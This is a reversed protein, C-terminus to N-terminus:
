YDHEVKEVKRKLAELKEEDLVKKYEIPLVKLFKGVYSAWNELIEKARPSGTYDYHRTILGKLEREDSSDEILSLEVMEMNCFYDFNCDENLVFAMGGSMGAAFNRGVKGLIVARGGTMYECCHDGAGEIVAIAGSNRVCFREGAMGNIYVEGSTAGYMLTNGVIINDEPKITINKPPVVVIRGGSLGKGLYDNADGELRFTMGKTIFAGFSQGASGFFNVNITNDPLGASGYKKAVEGALMAGTARDINTIEMDIDVKEHKDIAPAALKILKRDLIDEIKHVQAKCCAASNDVIETPRHLIKSLDLHKAKWHDSKKAEILDTRGIIDDLKTYGMQALWERVEQALFTFFNILYEHKGM